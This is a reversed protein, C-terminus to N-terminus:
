QSDGTNRQGTVLVYVDAVRGDVPPPLLFWAAIFLLNIM